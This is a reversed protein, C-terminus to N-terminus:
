PIPHHWIGNSTLGPFRPQPGPYLLGCQTAIRAASSEARDAIQRARKRDRWLMRRIQVSLDSLGECAERNDLNELRSIAEEFDDLTNM